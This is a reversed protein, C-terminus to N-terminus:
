TSAPRRWPVNGDGSPQHRRQRRLCLQGGEAKGEGAAVLEKLNTAPFSPNTVLVLPVIAIGAVPAFDKIPDYPLKSYLGPNVALPGSSSVLLTYGDAPSSM